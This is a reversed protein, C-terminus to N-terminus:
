RGQEDLVSYGTSNSNIDLGLCRLSNPKIDSSSTDKILSQHSVDKSKKNQSSRKTAHFRLITITPKFTWSSHISAPKYLKCYM